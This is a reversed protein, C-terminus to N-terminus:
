RRQVPILAPLWPPNLTGERRIRKRAFPVRASRRKQPVSGGIISPDDEFDCQPFCSHSASAPPAREKGRHPGCRPGRECRRRRTWQLSVAQHRVGVEVLRWEVGGAAAAAPERSTHRTSAMERERRRGRSFKGSRDARQGVLGTRPPTPKGDAAPPLLEDGGRQAIVSGDGPPWDAARRRLDRGRPAARAAPRSEASARQAAWATGGSGSRDGRDVRRPARRRRPQTHRSVIGASASAGGATSGSRGRASRARARRRTTDARCSAPDPPASLPPPLTAARSKSSKPVAVTWTRVASPTTLAGVALKPARVGDAGALM